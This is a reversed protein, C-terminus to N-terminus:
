EALVKRQMEFIDKWRSQLMQHQENNSVSHWDLHDINEDTSWSKLEIHM